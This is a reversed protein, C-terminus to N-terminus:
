VPLIFFSTNTSSRDEELRFSDLVGEGQLIPYDFSAIRITVQAEVDDSDLQFQFVASRASFVPLKSSNPRGRHLSHYGRRTTM